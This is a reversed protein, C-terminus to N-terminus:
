FDGDFIFVFLFVVFTAQIPFSSFLILVSPQFCNRKKPFIDFNLVFLFVVFTAQIPFSSFSFFKCRKNSKKSFKVYSVQKESEKGKRDREM